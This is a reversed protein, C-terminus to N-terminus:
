ARTGDEPESEMRERIPSLDHIFSHKPASWRHSDGRTGKGQRVAKGERVLVDLANHLAGRSPVPELLASIEQRTRPTDDLVVQVRRVTEAATLLGPDGLTQLDDGRLDLAWEAPTETFRSVAKCVRRTRAHPDRHLEIAVDVLGVLAHSGAHGLGVDAASKRLHHILVLAWRLRRALFILPQIAATVAAQDNEDVIGCFARITDVIVLDAGEAELDSLMRSWVTGAAFTLMLNPTALEAFRRVRSAWLDRPEETLWCVRFAPARLLSRAAHLLLTTKGVKGHGSVLTACGGAVVGAQRLFPLWAIEVTAVDAALAAGTIKRENVGERKPDPDFSRIAGQVDDIVRGTLAVLAELDQGNRAGHVLHGGLEGLARKGADRRLIALHQTITAPSFTANLLGTLYAAGGAEDLQGQQRLRDTVTVLDPTQGARHLAGIAAFIAAHARVYFADAGLAEVAPAITEGDGAQAALLLAGLVAQEADVNHPPVADQPTSSYTSM